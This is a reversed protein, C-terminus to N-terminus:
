SRSWPTNLAPEQAKGPARRVQLDQKDTESNEEERETLRQTRQKPSVGGRAAKGERAGDGKRHNSQHGPVERHAGERQHRWTRGSEETGPPTQDVEAPNRQKEM